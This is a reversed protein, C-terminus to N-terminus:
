KGIKPRPMYNVSYRKSVCEGRSSIARLWFLNLGQQLIVNKKIKAKFENEGSYFVHSELLQEQGNFNLQVVNISDTSSLNAELQFEPQDAFSQETEPTKVQLMPEASPELYVILGRWRHAVRNYSSGAIVVHGLKNILMKNGFDISPSTITKEWGLEGLSDLQLLRIDSNDNYISKSYSLVLLQGKNTYAIDSAEENQNEHLLKRWIETGDAQLMMVLVDYVPSNPERSMGCIALNGDPLETLSNACSISGVEFNQVWQQTGMADIKGVLVVRNGQKTTREFGAFAVGGDATAHITLLEEGSSGSYTYKWLQNGATDLKMIVARHEDYYQVDQFGGVFLNHDQSMKMHNIRDYGPGKIIKSWLTDGKENTKILFFDTYPLYPDDLTAGGLYIHSENDTVLTEITCSFPLDIIKEWVPM